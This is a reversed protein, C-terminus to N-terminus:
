GSKGYFELLLVYLGVGGAILIFGMKIMNPVNNTYGGYMLFGGVLVVAVSISVNSFNIVFDPM